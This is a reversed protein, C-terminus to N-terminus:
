NIMNEILLKTGEISDKINELSLIVNDIKKYNLKIKEGCKPCFTVFSLQKYHGNCGKKRCKNVDFYEWEEANLNRFDGCTECYFTRPFAQYHGSYELKRDLVLLPKEIVFNNIDNNSLRPFLLEYNNIRDNYAKQIQKFLNEKLRQENNIKLNLNNEDKYIWMVKNTIKDRMFICNDVNNFLASYASFIIKDNHWIM